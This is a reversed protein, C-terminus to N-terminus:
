SAIPTIDLHELLSAYVVDAKSVGLNFKGLVESKVHGCGEAVRVVQGFSSDLNGEVARCGFPGKEDLIKPSGYIHRTRLIKQGQLPEKPLWLQVPTTCSCNRM